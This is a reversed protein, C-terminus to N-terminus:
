GGKKGYLRSKFDDILAKLEEGDEVSWHGEPIEIDFYFGEEDERVSCASRSTIKIFQVEDSSSNTDASQTYTISMEEIGVAMVKHELGYKELDETYNWPMIKTEM